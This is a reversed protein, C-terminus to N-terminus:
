DNRRTRRPRTSAGGTRPAVKRKRLLTRLAKNVARDNPFAKAVQPDLVVVNTEEAVRQVYKGRVLPGFDSRKYETRLEGSFKRRAKKM